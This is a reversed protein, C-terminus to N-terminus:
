VDSPFFSTRGRRRPGSGARTLHFVAGDRFRLQYLRRGGARAAWEHVYRAATGTRSALEASTLPGAAALAKYLGCKDGLLVLGISMAAGAEGLMKGLFQQLKAEDIAM